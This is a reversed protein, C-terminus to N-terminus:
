SLYKPVVVPILENGQQVWQRGSKIASALVNERRLARNTILERLLEEKREMRLRFAQERPAVVSLPSVNNQIRLSELRQGVRMLPARSGSNSTLKQEHSTM